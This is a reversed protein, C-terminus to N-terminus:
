KGNAVQLLYNGLYAFASVYSLAAAADMADDAVYTYYASDANESNWTAKHVVSSDSKNSSFSDYWKISWDKDAKMAALTIPRNWLIALAIEEENMLVPNVYYGNGEGYIDSATMVDWKMNLYQIKVNWTGETYESIKTTINDEITVSLTHKEKNYNSISVKIYGKYEDFAFSEAFRNLYEGYLIDDALLDANQDMQDFYAKKAAELTMEGTKGEYKPEYPVLVPTGEVDEYKFDWQLSKGGCSTVLPAVIAATSAIAAIPLLKKLKMLLIREPLPISGEEMTM